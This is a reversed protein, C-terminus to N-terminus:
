ERFKSLFAKLGIHGKNKQLDKGTAIDRAQSFKNVIKEAMLLGVKEVYEAWNHLHTTIYKWDVRKMWARKETYFASIKQDLVESGIHVFHASGKLERKKGILLISIFSLSALWITISIIM